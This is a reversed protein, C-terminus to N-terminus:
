ECVPLHTYSVATWAPGHAKVNRADQHYNGFYYAAVQCAGDRGRLQEAELRWDFQTSAVLAAAGTLFKRRDM